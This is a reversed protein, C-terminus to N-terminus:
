EVCTDALGDRGNTALLYLAMGRLVYKVAGVFVTSARLETDHRWQMDYFSAGQFLLQFHIDLFSVCTDIRTIVEHSYIIVQLLHGLFSYALVFVVDEQYYVACRYAVLFM